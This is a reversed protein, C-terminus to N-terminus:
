NALTIYQGCNSGINNEELNGISVVNDFNMAKLKEVLDSITKDNLPDLKSKLNNSSANLTPNLPTLKIMFKSPDFYNKIIEPVIPYDEMVIFNLTIKRDNNKVFKDSFQAIETFSMKKIPILKDRKEVDTTHISFQLQFRGNGYFKDKIDTIRDLFYKSNKPGITSVSPILGPANFLTPLESLVELVDPNYVPEGMRAFQIKFKKVPVNGDPFRRLVMYKIQLIIESRSMKGYYNQGADCMLCQVPCGFLCSITLVWKEEISKPYELSEAFEVLKNNMKAIFVNAIEDKGVQRVIEM